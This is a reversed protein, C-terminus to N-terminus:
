AGGCVFDGAVDGGGVARFPRVSWVDSVRTRRRDFEAEARAMWGVWVVSLCLMGFLRMKRM